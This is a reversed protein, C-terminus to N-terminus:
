TSNRLDLRRQAVVVTDNTTLEGRPCLGFPRTLMRVLGKHSTIAPEGPSIDRTDANVQAKAQTPNHRSFTFITQLIDPRQTM